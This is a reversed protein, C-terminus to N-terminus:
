LLTYLLSLCKSIIPPEISIDSELIVTLVTIQSITLSITYENNSNFGLAEICGEKSCYYGSNVQIFDGPAPSETTNMWPCPLVISARSPDQFIRTVQVQDETVMFQVVKIIATCPSHFSSVNENNDLDVIHLERGRNFKESVIGQCYEYPGNLVQVMGKLPIHPSVDRSVLDLEMLVKQVEDFPVTM